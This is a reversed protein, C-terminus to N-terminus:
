GIVVLVDGEQVQDEPKVRVESVTGGSPAAVPIEMKMSELIVLEDGEAVTAGPEVLVQWVNAAIEARVEAMRRRGKIGTAARSAGHQHWSRDDAGHHGSRDAVHREGPSWVTRRRQSGVPRLPAGGLRDSRVAAPAHRGLPAPAPTHVGRSTTSVLTAAMDPSPDAAVVTTSTATARANPPNTPSQRRRLRGAPPRARLRRVM